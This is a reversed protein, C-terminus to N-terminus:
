RTGKAPGQGQAALPEGYAATLDLTMLWQEPGGLDWVFEESQVPGPSKPGKSGLAAKEGKQVVIRSLELREVVATPFGDLRGLVGILPDVEGAAVMSYATSHFQATGRTAPKVASTFNRLELGQDAAYSIIINSLQVVTQQSPVGQPEPAARLEELEAKLAPRTDNSRLYALDDRAVKLKNQLVSADDRVVEEAPAFRTLGVFGVIVVLAVLGTEVRVLSKLRPPSLRQNM